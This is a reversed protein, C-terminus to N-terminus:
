WPWAQQRARKRCRNPVASGCSGKAEFVEMVHKGGTDQRILEWKAQCTREIAFAGTAVLGAIFACCAQLSLKICLSGRMKLGEMVTSVKFTDGDQNCDMPMDCVPFTHFYWCYELRGSVWTNFTNNSKSKLFVDQYLDSRNM